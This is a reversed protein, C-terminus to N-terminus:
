PYADLGQTQVLSFLSIFHFISCNSLINPTVSAPLVTSVSILAPADV